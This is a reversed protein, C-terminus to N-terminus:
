HSFPQVLIKKKTRHDKTQKWLPIISRGPTEGHAVKLLCNNSSTKRIDLIILTETLTITKNYMSRIREKESRCLINEFNTGVREKGCTGETKKRKGLRWSHKRHGARGDVFCVKFDHKQKKVSPLCCLACSSSMIVRLFWAGRDYMFDNGTVKLTRSMIITYDAALHCRLRQNWFNVTRKLGILFSITLQIYLLSFLLASSWCSFLTLLTHMKLQIEATSIQTPDYFLCEDM